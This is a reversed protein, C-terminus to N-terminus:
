RRRRCTRSRDAAGAAAARGASSLGVSELGSQILVATEGLGSPVALGALAGLM